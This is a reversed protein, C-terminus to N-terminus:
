CQIPLLFFLFMTFGDMSIQFDGVIFFFTFGLVCVSGAFYAYAFANEGKMGFPIGFNFDTM